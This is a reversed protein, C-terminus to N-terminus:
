TKEISDNKMIQLVGSHEGLMKTHLAIITHARANETDRRLIIKYIFRGTHEQNPM